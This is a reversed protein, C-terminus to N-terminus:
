IKSSRVDVYSNKKFALQEQHKTAISFPINQYNTSSNLLGKLSKHKSELRMSSMHIIPGMQRIINPYHILLHMKINISCEFIERFKGLFTVVYKELAVLQEETLKRSYVTQMIRLLCEVLTRVHKVRNDDRFGAFLFPLHFFLCRSQTANQGFNRKKLLLSSPVNRKYKEGYDFSKIISTLKTETILREAFFYEFIYKLLKPIVGENLDHMIDVSKNATIHFFKLDNLLCYRKVGITTKYDIKTLQQIVELNLSYSEKTRM